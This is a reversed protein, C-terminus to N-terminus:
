RVQELGWRNLKISPLTRAFHIEIRVQRDTRRPIGLRVVGEPFHWEYNRVFEGNALNQALDDNFDGKEYFTAPHGYRKLLIEKIEEFTQKFDDVRGGAQYDILLATRALLGKDQIMVLRQRQDIETMMKGEYIIANGQEIGGKIGMNELRNILTETLTTGEGVIVLGNPRLVPKELIMEPEALKIPIKQM